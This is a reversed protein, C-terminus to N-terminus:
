SSRRARKSERTRSARLAAGAEDAISSRPPRPLVEQGIAQKQREVWESVRAWLDDISDERGRENIYGAMPMLASIQEDTLLQFAALAAIAFQNHPYGRRTHEWASRVPGPLKIGIQERSAM